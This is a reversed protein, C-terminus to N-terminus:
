QKIKKLLMVYGCLDKKKKKNVQLPKIMHYETFKPIYDYSIVNGDIEGWMKKQYVVQRENWDFMRVEYLKSTVDGIFIFQYWSGETLPVIVPIEYESEMSVSAEKVVIFGAEALKAKISDAQQKITINNCAAQRIVTQANAQMGTITFMFIASLILQNKM